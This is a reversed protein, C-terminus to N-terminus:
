TCASTKCAQKRQAICSCVPHMNKLFASCPCKQCANLVAQLRKFLHFYQHSARQGIWTHAHPHIVPTNLTQRLLIFLCCAHRYMNGLYSLSAGSQMLDHIIFLWLCQYISMSKNMCTIWAHMHLHIAPKSAELSAHSILLCSVQINVCKEHIGRSHMAILQRCRRLVTCGESYWTCISVSVM